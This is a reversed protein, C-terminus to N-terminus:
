KKPILSKYISLIQNITDNIDTSNIPLRKYNDIIEVTKEYLDDLSGKKFLVANGPRVCVDSAITPTGFHIAEKVSLGEIDTLTPRIFLDSMEWVQFGNPIPHNYILINENLKYNSIRTKCEIFYDEDGMQPLCFVLGLSYGNQKLRHMLEILLDFGYVDGDNNKYLKFGNASILFSHKSRFDNITKPLPQREAKLPKIYASVVKIKARKIGFKESFPSALNPDNMILYNVKSFFLKLMKVKWVSNISFIGKGHITLLIKHQFSFVLLLMFSWFNSTHLHIIKPRQFPLKLFELIANKVKIVGKSNSSGIGNFDKCVVNQTSSAYNLLRYIHISVGGIPPPYTGWLEIKM